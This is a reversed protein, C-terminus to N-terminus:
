EAPNPPVPPTYEGTITLNLQSAIWDYAYDNTTWNEYADGTMTLVGSALVTTNYPAAPPLSQICLQYNFQASDILNDNSTSNLINADVEQGNYWVKVPEITKM